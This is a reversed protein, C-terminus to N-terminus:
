IKIKRSGRDIVLNLMDRVEQVLAVNTETNQASRLTNNAIARLQTLQQEAIVNYKPLIENGWKELLARKISVDARISNLYSALINATDETINEQIGKSLTNSASTEELSIGMKKAAANLYDWIKKSDSITGRLSGLQQMLGAAEQETLNTGGASSDTFIGKDGFLYDRLSNMSKQIVNVSIM